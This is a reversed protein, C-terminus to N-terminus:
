MATCARAAQEKTILGARVQEAVVSHDGSLQVLKGSRYLYARSDGIHALYAKGRSFLLATLTTGM